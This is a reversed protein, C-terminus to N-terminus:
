NRRGVQEMEIAGTMRVSKRINLLFRIQRRLGGGGHKREKVCMSFNRGISEIEPHAIVEM